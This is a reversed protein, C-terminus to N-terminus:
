YKSCHMEELNEGYTKPQENELQFNIRAIGSNTFLTDKLIDQFMYAVMNGEITHINGTGDSSFCGLIQSIVVAVSQQQLPTKKQAFETRDEKWVHKKTSVNLNRDRGGEVCKGLVILSQGQSKLCIEHTSGNAM